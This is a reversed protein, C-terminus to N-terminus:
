ASERAAALVRRLVAENIGADVRVKIGNCLEIEIRSTTAAFGPLPQVAESPPPPPPPASGDTASPVPRMGGEHEIVGIRIFGQERIASLAQRAASTGPGLRDERYLKRWEFLQNANVGHRRAVQAVSAGPKFTEEVIWRKMEAPRRILRRVPKVAEAAEDHGEQPASEGSVTM